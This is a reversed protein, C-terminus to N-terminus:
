MVKEEKAMLKEEKGEQGDGEEAMGKYQSVRDLGGCNLTSSGRM